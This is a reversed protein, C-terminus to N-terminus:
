EKAAAQIRALVNAISETVECNKLRLVRFGQMELAQQRAADQEQTTEHVPGDVEIILRKEACYFDVIFRGIPHQRRFRLGGFRRGRLWEWLVDEAPTPAKRMDRAKPRLRAWLKPPTNWPTNKEMDM